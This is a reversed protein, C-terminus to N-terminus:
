GSLFIRLIFFFGERWYLTNSVCNEIQSRGSFIALNRWWSMPEGENMKGSLKKMGKISNRLWKKVKGELIKVIKKKLDEKNKQYEGVNGIL